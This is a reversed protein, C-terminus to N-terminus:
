ILLLQSEPPLIQMGIDPLDKEDKELQEYSYEEDFEFKVAKGFGSDDDDGHYIYESPDLFAHGATWAFHRVGTTLICALTLKSICREGETNTSQIYLQVAYGLTINANKNYFVKTNPHSKSGPIKSGGASAAQRLWIPPRDSSGLLVKLGTEANNQNFSQLIKKKHLLNLAAKRPNERGSILVTPIATTESRGVMYINASLSMIPNEGEQIENRYEKLLARIEIGLERTQEDAPGTIHWCQYKGLPECMTGISEKSQQFCKQTNTRLKFGLLTHGNSKNKQYDVKTPGNQTTNTPHKEAQGNPLWFRSKPIETQLSPSTAPGKGKNQRHTQRKSNVSELFDHPLVPAPGLGPLEKPPPEKHTISALRRKFSEM